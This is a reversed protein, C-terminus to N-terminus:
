QKGHRLGEVHNVPAKIIHALREDADTLQSELDRNARKSRNIIIDAIQIGTVILLAACAGAFLAFSM